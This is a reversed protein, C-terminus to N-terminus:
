AIRACWRHLAMQIDLAVALTDPVSLESPTLREPEIGVILHADLFALRVLLGEFPGGVAAVNQYVIDLGCAVLQHGLLGGVPEAVLEILVENLTPMPLLLLVARLMASIGAPAADTAQERPVPIPFRLSGTRVAEMELSTVLTDRRHATNTDMMRTVQEREVMLVEPQLVQPQVSDIQLLETSAM